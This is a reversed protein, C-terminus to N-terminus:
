LWKRKRAVISFSAAFQHLVGLDAAIKELNGVTRWFDVDMQNHWHSTAIVYPDYLYTLLFRLASKCDEGFPAIYIGSKYDPLPYYFKIDRFGADKLMNSYEEYSYTYTRYPKGRTLMSLKEADKRPLFTINKIGSHDDPFGLLYKFGYRNEIGIYLFGNKKCLQHAIKLAKLQLLQPDDKLNSEGIWELSGNFVVLDFQNEDLPPELINARISLVNSVCEEKCRLKLFQCRELTSDMAVVHGCRRSLPISITGWGSGVDLVEYNDDLPLLFQWDARTEDMIIQYAWPSRSGLYKFVAKKWGLEPIESLLAKMTEQPLEGYYQNEAAFDPVGDIIPYRTNCKTCVIWQNLYNIKAKCRPCRLSVSSHDDLITRSKSSFIRRFILRKKAGFRSPIHNVENLYKVASTV